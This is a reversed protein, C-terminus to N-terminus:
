SRTKNRRCRKVVNIRQNRCAATPISIVELINIIVTLYNAPPNVGRIVGSVNITEIQAVVVEYTDSFTVKM